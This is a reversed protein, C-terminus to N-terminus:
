RSTALTLSFPSSAIAMAITVSETPVRINRTLKKPKKPAHMPFVQMSYVTLTRKVIFSGAMM